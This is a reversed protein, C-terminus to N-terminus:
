DRRTRVFTVLERIGRDPEELPDGCQSDVDVSWEFLAFAELATLLAVTESKKWSDLDLLELKSLLVHSVTVWGLCDPFTLVSRLFRPLFFKFSAEGGMTTMVKFMVFDLDEATFNEVGKKRLEKTKAIRTPAVNLVEGKWLDHQVGHLLGALDATACELRERALPLAPVDIM